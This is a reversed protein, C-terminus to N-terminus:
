LVRTMKKSDYRVKNAVKMLKSNGTNQHQSNNNLNNVISTNNLIHQSKIRAQSKDPQKHFNGKSNYGNHYMFGTNKRDRDRERQDRDDEIYQNTNVFKQSISM